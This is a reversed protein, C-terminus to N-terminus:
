DCIKAHTEFPIRSGDVYPAAPAVAVVSSAKKVENQLVRRDKGGRQKMIENEAENLSKQHLLNVTM